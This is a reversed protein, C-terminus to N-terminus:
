DADNTMAEDSRKECHRNMNVAVQVLTQQYEPNVNPIFHSELETFPTKCSVGIGSPDGITV